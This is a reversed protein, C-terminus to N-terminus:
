TELNFGLKLIPKEFWSSHKEQTSFTLLQHSLSAMNVGSRQRIGQVRALNQERGVLDSSKPPEKTKSGLPLGVRVETVQFM